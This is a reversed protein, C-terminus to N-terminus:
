GTMEPGPGPTEPKPVDEARLIQPEAMEALGPVRKEALLADFPSPDFGSKTVENRNNFYFFSAVAVKDLKRGMTKSEDVLHDLLKQAQRIHSKQERITRLPNGPRVVKEDYANQAESFYQEEVEAGRIEKVLQQSIYILVSKANNKQVEKLADDEPEIVIRELEGDNKLPLFRKSNSHKNAIFFDCMQGLTIKQSAIAALPRDPIVMSQSIVPPINKWVGRVRLAKNMRKLINPQAALQALVCFSAQNLCDKIPSEASQKKNLKGM